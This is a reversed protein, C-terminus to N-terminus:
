VGVAQERGALQSVKAKGGGVIEIEGEEESERPLYCAQCASYAEVGLTKRHLERAERFARGNWIELITSERVDGMVHDEYLDNHCLCAEGEATIFLRQWPVHCVFNPKYTIQEPDDEGLYDVLAGSAVMDVFPGYADFFAQPDDKIAPWVGQIKVVPKASGLREKIAKFAKLKEILEDYKAPYRIENYTEGIGDASITIWDMGIRVFKEFLEPTLKTANTLTSVERIGVEKALRAAEYFQPHLSPEGRLSLRISFVGGKGAEHMIKEILDWNLLQATVDKKFRETITYCMPCRLNCVAALEMDIHEPYRRPWGFRPFYHWRFRNGIYGLLHGKGRKLHFRFSDLKSSLTLMDRNISFTAM